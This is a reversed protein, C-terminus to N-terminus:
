EIVEDARALLTPPIELGLAKAAKLNIVLEVKVSQQVPLDAPKEGKVIRGTYVGALRYADALSAGYSMLGGVAAFERFQSIAPVAHRVTLTALQKSRSIFLGDPSILLAGARLQAVTAFVTDIDRETSAYLLHLQLGLTSAAAQLDRLQSEAVIPNTPNVLVGISTVAPILEHLLELRKPGLEVNLTTVGTLNGGPRNLSAVLGSQVPDVGTVFVIPITTIVGKAAATTGLSAIVTVQRAVLEAALAPLRDNQGDAWRYEIAVNRGELYGAESLGQRFARVHDAVLDPSLNNLFGIVPMAPQQARAAIPWAAAGGLLTIFERRKTVLRSM